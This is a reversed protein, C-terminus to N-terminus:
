PKQSIYVSYLTKFISTRSFSNDKYVIDARHFQRHVIDVLGFGQLIPELDFSILNPGQSPEVLCLKGGSKLTDIINQLAFSVGEEGVIENRYGGEYINELVKKCYAFDLDSPLNKSEVIDGARFDPFRKNRSLIYVKYRLTNSTLSDFNKLLYIQIEIYFNRVENISPVSFIQNKEFKDIGICDAADIELALALTTYGKGCGFDGVKWGSKSRLDRLDEQIDEVEFILRDFFKQLDNKPIVTM